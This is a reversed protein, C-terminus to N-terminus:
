FWKWGSGEELKRLVGVADVYLRCRAGLCDNELLRRVLGVVSLAERRGRVRMVDELRVGDAALLRLWAVAEDEGAVMGGSGGGAAAAAAAQAPPVVSGRRSSSSSAAPTTPPAPSSVGSGGGGGGGVQPHLLLLHSGAVSEARAVRHSFAWCILACVYFAWYDSLDASWSAAAAAAQNASSEAAELGGAAPASASAVGAQRDLFLLIARAAYVTARAVSLGALTGDTTSPATGGM